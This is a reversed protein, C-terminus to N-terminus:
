ASGEQANSSATHRQSFQLVERDRKRIQSRSVVLSFVERMAQSYQGLRVEYLLCLVLLVRHLCEEDEEEKALSSPVSLSGLETGSVSGPSLRQPQAACLFQSEAALSVM